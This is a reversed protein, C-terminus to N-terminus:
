SYAVFYAPNTRICSLLNLLTIFTYVIQFLFMLRTHNIRLTTYTRNILIQQIERIKNPNSHLSSFWPLKKTPLFFLQTQIHFCFGETEDGAIKDTAFYECILRINWFRPEDFYGPIHSNEYQWAEMWPILM